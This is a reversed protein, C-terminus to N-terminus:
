HAAPPVYKADAVADFGRALAEVIDDTTVNIRQQAATRRANEVLTEVSPALVAAVNAIGAGAAAVRAIATGSPATPLGEYDRVASAAGQIGVVAAAADNGAAIDLGVHLAASTVDALLERGATSAADQYVVRAASEVKSAGTSSCGGFTLACVALAASQLFLTTVRRHTLTARSALHHLPNM